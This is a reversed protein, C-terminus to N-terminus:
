SAMLSAELQHDQQMSFGKIVIWGYKLQVGHTGTM